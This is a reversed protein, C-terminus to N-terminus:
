AAAARSGAPVQAHGATAGRLNEKARGLHRLMVEVARDDIGALVDGMLEEGLQRLREVIPRAASTLYLRKVRRDNPDARREVLGHACLRDVLRTLSIPKLDLHDALESQKLGECLELRSLVVWQARTMNLARVRQDALTRLLRAVDNLLFALERRRSITPM